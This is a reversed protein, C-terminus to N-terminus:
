TGSGTGTVHAHGKSYSDKTGRTRGLLLTDFSTRYSAWLVWPCHRYRLCDWNSMPLSPLFRSMWSINTYPFRQKTGRSPTFRSVQGDIYPWSLCGFLYGRWLGRNGKSKLCYRARWKYCGMLILGLCTPCVTNGEPPEFRPLFTGRTEAQLRRFRGCAENGFGLDRFMSM